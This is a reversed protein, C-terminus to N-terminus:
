RVSAVFACVAVIALLAWFFMGFWYLFPQEDRKFTAGPFYAARASYFWTLLGLSGVFVVISELLV